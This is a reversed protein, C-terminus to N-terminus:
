PLARKCHKINARVDWFTLAIVAILALSLVIEWVRQSM